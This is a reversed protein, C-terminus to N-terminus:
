ELKRSCQPCFKMEESVENGCSPCCNKKRKGTKPKKTGGIKEADKDIQQILLSLEEQTMLKQQIEPKLEEPIEFSAQCASCTLYQKNSYNFTPIFYVTFKKRVQEVTFACTTSCSPCEHILYGLLDDYGKTGLVFIM